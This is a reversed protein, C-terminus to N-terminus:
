LEIEEIKMMHIAHRYNQDPPASIVFRPARDRPGNNDSASRMQLNGMAVGM